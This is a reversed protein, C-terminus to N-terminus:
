STLSSKKTKAEVTPGTLMFIRRNFDTDKGNNALYTLTHKKNATLGSVFKKEYSGEVTSPVLESSIFVVRNTPM